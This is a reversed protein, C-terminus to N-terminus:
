GCCGRPAPPPKLPRKDKITHQRMSDGVGELFFEIKGCHPCLFTEYFNCGHFLEALGARLSNGDDLSKKGTYVM